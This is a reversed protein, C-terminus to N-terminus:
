KRRHLPLARDRLSHIGIEFGSKLVGLQHDGLLERIKEKAAIMTAKVMGRREATGASIPRAGTQTADKWLAMLYGVAFVMGVFDPFHGANARRTLGAYTKAFRRPSADLFMTIRDVGPSTTKKVRSFTQEIHDATINLSIRGLGIESLMTERARDLASAQGDPDVNPGNANAPDGSNEGGNADANLPEKEDEVADSTTTSLVPNIDEDFDAADGYWDM